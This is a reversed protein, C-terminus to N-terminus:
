RNLKPVVCLQVHYRRRGYYIHREVIQTASALASESSDLHLLLLLLLLITDFVGLVLSTSTQSHTHTHSVHSLFSIDTCLYLTARNVRILLRACIFDLIGYLEICDIYKYRWKICKKTSLYGRDNQMFTRGALM